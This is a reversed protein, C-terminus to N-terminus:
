PDVGTPLDLAALVRGTDSLDGVTRRHPDPACRVLTPIAIINDVQAREPHEALDVVEIEFRGALHEDCLRRLNASARLSKPSQGAVYLRLKWVPGTTDDLGAPPRDAVVASV